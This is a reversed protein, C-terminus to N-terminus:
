LENIHKEIAALQELLEALKDKSQQVVEPKARSVFNENSLKGQLPKIGNEVHAKQKELRKREEEPDIVDHVFINVGEIIAAAANAPKEADITAAFEELGALQCILDANANLIDTVVQPAKASAALRVKPAITYQNRVERISRIVGQVTEIQQEIDKDVLGDIAEPWQANVIADSALATAIKGLGREPALDNLKQFITETIFPVFPHLLRLTQDLVFALVNQAIPKTEPNQMRPKAWELYWDCFDNWFFKYIANLPENFKFEDFLTTVLSVTNALRSLIWKDAANMKSADFKAPDTGELNMMAFRSANWLKNCFNRGVDFKPSTNVVRGDPLTMPAVPMRVDQTDTTMSALTFRMADAGHSDIAVLPDIGNGLSKSMKRGQGDQIMAHIYVDKFPIDGVCYQGMMVMRSVWLTIIERATCLVDGPYYKKMEATDDPWGMTSFPWLASSFWTDLVDEDRHISQLMSMFLPEISRAKEYYSNDNGSKGNKIASIADLAEQAELTKGCVFRGKTVLKSDFERNVFYFDQEYELGWSELIKKLKNPWYDPNSSDGLEVNHAGLFEVTWVPIQHGWWLQRSIPWDRLNELWNQYTSAYREPTFKVKGDLLPKLALGALSNAPVDTGDIMGAGFKEALREVPKKVAIYWQDSLYPEIPVHSRYSHGVEHSYDRIEELLNETRFYEVIAARAEFRDMGLLNQAEPQDADKWGHKDSISGDPAMINIFVYDNADDGCGEPMLASAIEKIHRQGIAYDDPDHAPTVKLFGTSFKAKDDDSEPDPLVVHEDAIIAIERGVIPLKVMKGVLAKARPDSPNMAVATDGLMTEPRTTAVTIHEIVEGDIEVAEVLPYQLYWFHGHILEHEVEDDALVTQTAPDWNVLRKGRYILGDAFLNFFNTRVAKACTEDMTFRVRDWDCSCGMSKLQGIICAEYEDKWAQVHGVFEQRGTGKEEEIKRYDVLSPKGEHRLRKDVVTQTAIGAHDTGPMWLTSFQQMRRFRVLVDQLTNNLAHGLHLAATVNPPPIVIAYSKAASAPDAHFYNGKNWIEIAGAEISAPEYVTSLQEAM